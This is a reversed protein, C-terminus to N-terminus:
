QQRPPNDRSRCSHHRPTRAQITHRTKRENEEPKKSDQKQFYENDTKRQYLSSNKDNLCEYCSSAGHECGGGDWRKRVGRDDM